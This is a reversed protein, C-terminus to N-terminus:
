FLQGEFSLICTPLTYVSRVFFVATFTARNIRNKKTLEISVTIPNIDILNFTHIIFFFIKSKSGLLRRLFAKNSWITVTWLKSIKSAKLGLSIIIFFLLEVNSKIIIPVSLSAWEKEEIFWNM